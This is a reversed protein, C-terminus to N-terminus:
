VVCTPGRRWTYVLDLGGRGVATGMSGCVKQRLDPHSWSCPAHPGKVESGMHYSSGHVLARSWYHPMEVEHLSSKDVQRCRYMACIKCPHMRMRMVSQDRPVIWAIHTAGCDRTGQAPLRLTGADPM